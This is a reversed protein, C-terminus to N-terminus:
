VQSTLFKRGFKARDARNMFFLMQKEIREVAALTLVLTDHKLMSFVNLGYVPMITMHPISDAAVAFNEPALDTDDIFLVSPGWLREEALDLLYTPDNTPIDLSNVIHLDDQALKISLMSKLGFLRTHMPLMYFKTTPARPGHASGGNYWIPSRISGHRAKGLGKQQWPKRGGGRMEARSNVQVLNVKRYNMQWRANEWIMDIRPQVAFIEPHLDIMGVKREEVSDINEVWARRSRGDKTPFELKREVIMPTNFYQQSAKSAEDPYTEQVSSFRAVAQPYGAPRILRCVLKRFM